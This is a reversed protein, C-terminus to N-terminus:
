AVYKHKRHDQEGNVPWVQLTRLVAETSFVTVKELISAVKQYLEKLIDKDNKFLM